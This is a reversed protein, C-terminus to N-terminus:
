VRVTEVPAPKPDAAASAATMNTRGQDLGARILFRIARRGPMFFYGGGRVAVFNKVREL